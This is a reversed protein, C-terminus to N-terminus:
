IEKLVILRSMDRPDELAFQVFELEVIMVM